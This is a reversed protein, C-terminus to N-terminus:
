EFLVDKEVRAANGRPFSLAGCSACVATDAMREAVGMGGEVCDDFTREAAGVDVEFTEAAVPLFFRLRLPARERVMRFHIRRAHMCRQSVEWLYMSPSVSLMLKCRPGLVVYSRYPLVLCPLAASSSSGSRRLGGM